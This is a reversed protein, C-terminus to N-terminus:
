PSAVSITLWFLRIACHFRSLPNYIWVRTTMKMAPTSAVPPHKLLIRVTRIPTPVSRFSVVTWSPKFKLWCQARMKADTRCFVILYQGFDIPIDYLLRINKFLMGLLVVDSKGQVRMVPVHKPKPPGGAMLDALGTGVVRMVGRMADMNLNKFNTATTLDINGEWHQEVADLDMEGLKGVGLWEATYTAPKFQTPIGHMPLYAQMAVDMTENANLRRVNVHQIVVPPANRIVLEITSPIIAFYLLPLMMVLVVLNLLCLLRWRRRMFGCCGAMRSPKRAYIETAPTQPLLPAEVDALTRADVDEYGFPTKM